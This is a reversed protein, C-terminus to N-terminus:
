CLCTAQYHRKDLFFIKPKDASMLQEISNLWCGSHFNFNSRDGGPNIAVRALLWLFLIDSSFHASKVAVVPLCSHPFATLKDQCLSLLGYFNGPHLSVPLRAVVSDPVATVSGGWQLVLVFVCGFIWHFAGTGLPHEVVDDHWTPYLANSRICM